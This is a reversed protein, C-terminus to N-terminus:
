FKKTLGVRFDDKYGMPSRKNIDINLQLDRGFKKRFAMEKRLLDINSEFGLMETEIKGSEFVKYLDEGLLDVLGLKTSINKALTDPKSWGAM